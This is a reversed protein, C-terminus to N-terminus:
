KKYCTIGDDRIHERIIGDRTMMRIIRDAQERPINLSKEAEDLIDGLKACGNINSFADIIELLRIMKERVSTPKGSMITYVDIQGTEVDLGVTELMYRMINIARQADEKTAIDSLRMRAYALTIRRLAELQRPTIPIPSNQSGNELYKQRMKVYFDKLLKSAEEDLKPYIKQRAYAIYKKLLDPEIKTDFYKEIGKKRNLGLIKDAVLEDEEGPIDRLVFILDFRSLLAPDLNIQDVLPRTDDYRGFKPNGVAIVTTKANLKAVIGAKTISVTQQEMAENFAKRDEDKMKDIEDILLVGGSALPLAGAEIYWEGSKPDRNVTATLGVATSGKGTTYIARPAITSLYLLLQSKAIGPDGIILTHIEGRKKTGNETVEEPAGFLSVTLAEKVEWHGHIDPAISDAIRDVIQPDKALERIQQEDEETIKIEEFTPQLIEVSVVRLMYSFTPSTGKKSPNIQLDLFGTARVRDGLRLTDVLDDELILEVQRPIRGTQPEPEALVARQLPRFKSKEKVLKITGKLGCLPCVTPLKDDIDLEGVQPYIFEGGHKCNEHIFIGEVLRETVQNMKVISGEIAILKGQYNASLEKVDVIRPINTLRVYVRDASNEFDNLYPKIKKALDIVEEEEAKDEHFTQFGGLFDYLWKGLAPLTEKANDLLWYAFDKDFKELDAFDVYFSKKKEKVLQILREKYVRIGKRGKFHLIFDKFIIYYSNGFVKNEDENSYVKYEKKEINNFRSSVLDGM